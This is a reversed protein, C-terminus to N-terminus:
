KVLSCGVLAAAISPGICSIYAPIIATCVPPTTCDYFLGACVACVKIVIELVCLLYKGPLLTFRADGKAFSVMRQATSFSGQSSDRFSLVDPVTSLLQKRQVNFLYELTNHETTNKCELSINCKLINQRVFEASVRYKIEQQDMKGIFTRQHSIISESNTKLSYLELSELSLGHINGSFSHALFDNTLAVDLQSKSIEISPLIKKISSMQEFLSVNSVTFNGFSGRYSCNNNM